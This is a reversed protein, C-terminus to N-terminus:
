FCFSYSALCTVPMHWQNTEESGGFSIVFPNIDDMPIGELAFVLLFFTVSTAAALSSPSLGVEPATFRGGPSSFFGAIVITRPGGCISVVRGGTLAVGSTCNGGITGSEAGM